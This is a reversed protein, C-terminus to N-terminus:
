CVDLTQAKNSAQLWSAAENLTDFTTIATRLKLSPMPRV